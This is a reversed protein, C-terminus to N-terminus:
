EGFVVSSSKRGDYERALDTMTAKGVLDTKIIVPVAL